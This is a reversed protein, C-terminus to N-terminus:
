LHIVGPLSTLKEGNIKGVYVDEEIRVGYRNYVYVGPEVTVVDGELLTDRSTASLRPPEHVDVGIGHGLGHIFYVDLGHDKLLDRAAKDVGSALAGSKITKLAATIADNIIASVKEVEEYEKCLKQPLIMRTIDSVYGGIRVGFDILIPECGNFVVNKPTYHPLAANKGIAVIPSFAIGDAGFSYALEILKGAIFKETVGPEIYTLLSKLAKETISVAAKILEVEQDLKQRRVKEIIPRINICLRQECISPTDSAIMRANTITNEVERRMDDFTLVKVGEPLTYSYSFVPIFKFVKTERYTETFRNYDILSTFVNVDGNKVDIIVNLASVEEPPPNYLESFLYSLANKDRLVILDVDSISKVEDIIHKVKLEALLTM